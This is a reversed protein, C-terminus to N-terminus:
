ACVSNEDVIKNDVICKKRCLLVLLIIKNKHNCNKKKKRERTYNQMCSTFRLFLDGDWFFFIEQCLPHTKSLLALYCFLCSPPFLKCDDFILGQAQLHRTMRIDNVTTPRESCLDFAKEDDDLSHLLASCWQLCFALGWTVKPCAVIHILWGDMGPCICLM